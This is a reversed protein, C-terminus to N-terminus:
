RQEVVSRMWPHILCQFMHRGRSLTFSLTQGPDIFGLDDSKPVAPPTDPPLAENLRPVIGTGFNDVETFSHTEGGVNTVVLRQGEKLHAEKRSFRWAHHGGDKPNVRALLEDFTVNGDGVCPIGNATFSVVECRDQVLIDRTDRATAAGPVTLAALASVVAVGCIRGRRGVPLRKRQM